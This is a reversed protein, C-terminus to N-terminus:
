EGARFTAATQEEEPDLHGCSAETPQESDFHGHTAWLICCFFTVVIVPVVVFPSTIDM